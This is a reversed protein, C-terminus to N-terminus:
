ALCTKIQEIIYSVDEKTVCPGSPLCLGQQFLQESVGSVYHPVEKYVPMRHMPKWLARSEVGCENLYARLQEINDNPQGGESVVSRVSSLMGRCKIQVRPDLLITTLWYNPRYDASPATHVSVGDVNRFADVYLQHIYRHHSIHNQLVTMQGHGIGVCITSLRYNFGIVEHQYYPTPEKAQTAYFIANRKSEADPM